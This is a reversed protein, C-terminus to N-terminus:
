KQNSTVKLVDLQNTAPQDQTFVSPGCSQATQIVACLPYPGNTYTYASQVCMSLLTQVPIYHESSLMTLELTHTHTHLM